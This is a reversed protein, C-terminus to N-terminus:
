LSNLWSFTVSAFGQPITLTNGTAPNIMNLSNGPPLAWSTGGSDVGRLTINYVNATGYNALGTGSPRECTVGAWHGYFTKGAPRATDPAQVAVDTTSNYFWAAGVDGALNTIWTEVVVEDWPNVTLGAVVVAASPWYQTFAYYITVTPSTPWIKTRKVMVGAQLAAKDAPESSWGGLGAWFSASYGAVGTTVQPVVITGTADHATRNQYVFPVYVSSWYGAVYANFTDTTTHFERGADRCVPVAGRVARADEVTDAWLHVRGERDSFVEADGVRCRALAPADLVVEFSKPAAARLQAITMRTESEPEAPKWCGALLLSAVLLQVRTPM